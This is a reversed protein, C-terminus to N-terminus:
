DEVLRRFSCRFRDMIPSAINRLSSCFERFCATRFKTSQRPAMQRLLSFGCYLDYSSDRVYVVAGSIESFKSGIHSETCVFKNTGLWKPVVWAFKSLQPWHWIAIRPFFNIPACHKWSTHENMIRWWLTTLVCGTHRPKEALRCTLRPRLIITHVGQKTPTQRLLM